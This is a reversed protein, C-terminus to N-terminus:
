RACVGFPVPTGWIFKLRSFILDPSFNLTNAGRVEPGTPTNERFKELRRVTVQPHYFEYLKEFVQGRFNALAFNVDLIQQLKHCSEVRIVFIEPVSRCIAFRFLIKDVVVGEVNPLVSRSSQDV